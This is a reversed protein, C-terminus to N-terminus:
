EEGIKKLVRKAEAMYEALSMHTSCHGEALKKIFDVCLCYEEWPHPYSYGADALMKFQTLPTM